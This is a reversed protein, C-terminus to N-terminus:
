PAVMPVNNIYTHTYGDRGPALTRGNSFDNRGNKEEGHLTGERRGFVVGVCGGGLTRVDLSITTACAPEHAVGKVVNAEAVEAREKAGRRPCLKAADTAEQEVLVGRQQIGPGIHERSKQATGNGSAGPSGEVGKEGLREGVPRAYAVRPLDCQSRSINEDPAAPWSRVDVLYM